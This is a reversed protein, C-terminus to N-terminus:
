WDPDTPLAIVDGAISYRVVKYVFAADLGCKQRELHPVLHVEVAKTQSRVNTTCV